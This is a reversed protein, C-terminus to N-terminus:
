GQAGDERGSSPARKKDQLLGPRGQPGYGRLYDKKRFFRFVVSLQYFFQYDMMNILFFGYRLDALCHKVLPAFAEETANGSLLNQGSFLCGM